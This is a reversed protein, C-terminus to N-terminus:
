QCLLTIWMLSLFPSISGTGIFLVWVTTTDPLTLGAIGVIFWVVLGALPTAILKRNTFEKRQEELTRQMKLKKLTHIM